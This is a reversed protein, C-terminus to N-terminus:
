RWSPSRRRGRRARGSRASWCAGSPSASWASPPSGGRRGGGAPAAAARGRRPPGTPPGASPRRRRCRRCPAPRTASRCTSRRTRPPRSITKRWAASFPVRERSACSPTGTVGSCSARSALSATSAPTRATCTWTRPSSPASLRCGSWTWAATAATRSATGSTSSEEGSTQPDGAAVYRLAELLDAAPALQGVAAREVDGLLAPALEALQEGLAADPDLGAQEGGAVGLLEGGGPQLAVAAAREDLRLLGRGLDGDGGRPRDVAVELALADLQRLQM